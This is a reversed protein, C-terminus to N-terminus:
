ALAVGALFAVLGLASLALRRWLTGRPSRAAAVAAGVWLVFGLVALLGWARSPRASHALVQAYHTARAARDEPVPRDEAAAEEAEWRAMLTALRGDVRDPWDGDPHLISRAARLGARLANLTRVADGTRGAEVQAEYLAWLARRADERWGAFPAYWSVAERLAVTAALEDGRELASLGRNRAGIGSSVTRIGLSLVVVLVLAWLGRSRLWAPM